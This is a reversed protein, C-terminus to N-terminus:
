KYKSQFKNCLSLCVSWRVLRGASMTVYLAAIAALLICPNNFNNVQFQMGLVSMRYSLWIETGFAANDIYIHKTILWVSSIYYEAYQYM